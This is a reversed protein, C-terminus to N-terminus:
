FQYKNTSVGATEITRATVTLENTEAKNENNNKEFNQDNKKRRKYQLKLRRTRM